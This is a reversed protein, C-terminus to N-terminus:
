HGGRDDYLQLWWGLMTQRYIESPAHRLLPPDITTLNAELWRLRRETDPRELLHRFAQAILKDALKDGTTGTPPIDLAWTSWVRLAIPLTVEDIAAPRLAESVAAPAASMIDGTFRM